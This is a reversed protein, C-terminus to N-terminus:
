QFSISFPYFIVKVVFVDDGSMPWSTLIPPTVYIFQEEAMSKHTQNVLSSRMKMLAAYRHSRFKMIPYNRLNFWDMITNEPKYLKDVYTLSTQNVYVVKDCYLANMKKDRNVFVLGTLVVSSGPGLHQAHIKYVHDPMM